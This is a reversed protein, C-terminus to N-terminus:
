PREGIKEVWGSSEYVTKEGTRAGVRVGRGVREEERDPGTYEEALLRAGSEDVILRNAGDASVVAAGPRGIPDAVGRELRLGPQDALVRLMAARTAPTTPGSLVLRTMSFTFDVSPEGRRRAELWRRLDEAQRPLRWLDDQSLSEGGVGTLLKIRFDRTRPTPKAKATAGGAVVEADLGSTTRGRGTEGDYWTETSSVLVEGSPQPEYSRERSYWYRGAKVDARAANDAGALLFSRADLTVVPAVRDAPASAVGSGAPGGAVIPGTAGSVLVPVALAASVAAAAGGLLLRARVPSPRRSPPDTLIRTLDAGRRRHYADDLLDDPRLARVLEDTNM